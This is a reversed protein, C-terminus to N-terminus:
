RAAKKTRRRLLALSGLGPALLILSAPIPTSVAMFGRGDNIGEVSAQGAPAYGPNSFFFAYAQSPNGSNLQNSWIGQANGLVNGQSANYIFATWTSPASSGYYAVLDNYLTQLQSVSGISWSGGLTSNVGAIWSGNATSWSGSTMTYGNQAANPVYYWSYGSASDTVIEGGGSSTVTFTANALATCGLILFFLTIGISKRM